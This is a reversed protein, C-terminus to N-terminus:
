EEDRRAHTIRALFCQARSGAGLAGRDMDRTRRVCLTPVSHFHGKNIHHFPFLLM